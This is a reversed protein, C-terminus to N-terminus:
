THCHHARSCLLLGRDIGSVSRRGGRGVTSGSTSLEFFSQSSQFHSRSIAFLSRRRPRPPALSAYKRLAKIELKPLPQTRDPLSNRCNRRYIEPLHYPDALCSAPTSRKLRMLPPLDPYCNTRVESMSHADLAQEELFMPSTQQLLLHSM